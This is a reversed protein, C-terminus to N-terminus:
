KPVSPGSSSLPVPWAFPMASAVPISGRVQQLTMRNTKLDVSVERAQMWAGGRRLRVDGRLHLARRDMELEAQESRADFDRLRARVGASAKAWRIAPVKDYLAELRGCTVDLEGRRMRVNGVLTARGSHLDVELLDAEVSVPEGDVVALPEARVTPIAVWAAAVLGVAVGIWWVRHKVVAGHRM